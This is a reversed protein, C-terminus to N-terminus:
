LSPISITMHQRFIDTKKLSEPISKLDRALGVICIPKTDSIRDIEKSMIELIKRTKDGSSGLADIDRIVVMAPANSIAKNVLLHLPNYNTFEVLDYEEESFSLLDHISIEYVM